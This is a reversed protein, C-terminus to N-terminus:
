KGGGSARVTDLYRSVLEAQEPKLKAKRTMKGMWSRWEEANYDGPNYLKHCKACKAHYVKKAVRTEKVSLEGAGATLLGAAGLALITWAVRM